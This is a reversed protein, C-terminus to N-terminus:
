NECYNMVQEEFVGIVPTEQCSFGYPDPYRERGAVRLRYNKCSGFVRDGASYHVCIPAFLELVTDQPIAPKDSKSQGFVGIKVGNPSPPLAMGGRTEGLEMQIEQGGNIPFLTQKNGTPGCQGPSIMPWTDIEAFGTRNRTWLKTDPIVFAGDADTNKINKVYVRMGGIHFGIGTNTIQCEFVGLLEPPRSVIVKPRHEAEFNRKGEKYMLCYVLLVGAAVLGGLLRAVWAMQQRRTAERWHRCLSWKKKKNDPKNKAAKPKKSKNDTNIDASRPPLEPSGKPSSSAPNDNEM